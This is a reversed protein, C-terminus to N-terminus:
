AEWKVFPVGARRAEFKAGASEYNTHIAETFGDKITVLPPCRTGFETFAQRVVVDRQAESYAPPCINFQYRGTTPDLWAFTWVDRTGDVIEFHM